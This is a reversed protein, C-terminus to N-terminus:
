ATLAIVKNRGSLKAQYMAKDAAAVLDQYNKYKPHHMVIGISVTLAHNKFRNKLALGKAEIMERIREAYQYAGSSSTDHLVFLFEEGGYRGVFDGRRTIDRLIDAVVKLAIDGVQHGCDDNLNKFHDIDLFGIAVKNLRKPNSCFLDELFEILMRKNNLCTLPDIKAKSKEQEFRKANCLASGLEFAIPTLHPLIAANLPIKSHQNDAYLIATLRNDRLIPVAIFEHVGVQKLLKHNKKFKDSIINAQLNRLCDLLDGSLSEVKIEFPPDALSEPWCYKAVLSRQRAAMNLMFVRDFQFIEQIAKLTQPVFVSPDLSQHPITLSSLFSVSETHQLHNSASTTDQKPKHQGLEIFTQVLNARLQQQSPFELCYFQSIERMENDIQDLLKVLDLNQLPLIKSIVEALSIPILRPFSGIGQIWAIYDAFAVIAIELRYPHSDYNSSNHYAAVASIVEPLGWDQCFVYGVQTHTVGYFSRESQLVPQESDGYEDIFASYSIVGYNELVLKGIDHLLGATYVLDPDPHNLHLAIKRSLTAVFLCHQWFFLLNFAKHEKNKILKNYLLLSIAINRIVNFGLLTIARQISETAKRLGYAASNVTKLIQSALAPETEIIKILDRIDANEDHTLQLLKVAAEPILQLHEIKKALVRHVSSRLRNFEPSCTDMAIAAFFPSKYRCNLM